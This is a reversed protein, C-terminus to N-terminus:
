YEFFVTNQPYVSIDGPPDDSIIMPTVPNGDIRLIQADVINLNSTSAPDLYYTPSVVDYFRAAYVNGGTLISKDAYSRVYTSDQMFWGGAWSQFILGNNNALRLWGNNVYVDGTFQHEYSAHPTTGYGIRGGVDSISIAWGGDMGLLGFNGGSFYLYGRITSQTDRLEIGTDSRSVWRTQVSDAYFHYAAAENYLGKGDKSIRCWGDEIYVGNAGSFRVDGAVWMGNTPVLGVDGYSNSILVGGTLIKQAGGAGNLFSFPNGDARHFNGNLTLGTFTVPDSTRLNQNITFGGGSVFNALVWSQFAFQEFSAWGSTSNYHRFHLSTSDKTHWFQFNRSTSQGFTVVTGLTGPWGASATIIAVGYGDDLFSEPPQTAAIQGRLLSNHAVADTIGYGGLTTPKGTTIQSWDIEGIDVPDLVVDGTRGAVSTVPYAPVMWAGDGRLFTTAGKTGTADLDSWPHRHELAAYHGNLDLTVTESGPPTNCVVGEPFVLRTATQVEGVAGNQVELTGGGSAAMPDLTVPDADSTTGDRFYARPTVTTPNTPDLLVTKDFVWPGPSGDPPATTPEAVQRDSGEVVILFDIRDIPDIDSVSLSVTSTVLGPVVSTVFTVGNHESM